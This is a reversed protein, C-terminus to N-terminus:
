MNGLAFNRLRSILAEILATGKTPNEDRIKAKRQLDM